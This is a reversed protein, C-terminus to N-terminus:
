SKERFLDVILAKTATTTLSWTTTSIILAETMIKVNPIGGEEFEHIVVMGLNRYMNKMLIAKMRM